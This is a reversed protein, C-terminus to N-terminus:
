PALVGCICMTTVGIQGDMFMMSFEFVGIAVLQNGWQTTVFPILAMEWDSIPLGHVLGHPNGVPVQQSALFPTIEHPDGTPVSPGLLPHNHCRVDGTFPSTSIHIFASKM